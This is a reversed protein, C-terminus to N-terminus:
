DQIQKELTYALVLLRIIDTVIWQSSSQPM